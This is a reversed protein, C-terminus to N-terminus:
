HYEIRETLYCAVLFIPCLVAILVVINVDM